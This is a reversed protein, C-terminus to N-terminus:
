DAREEIINDLGLDLDILRSCNLGFHSAFIEPEVVNLCSDLFVESKLM